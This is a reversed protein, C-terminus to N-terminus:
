TQPKVALLLYECNGAVDRNNATTYVGLESLKQRAQESPDAVIIKKARLFDSYVVGKLIATAMFGGGIVGLKYQKKM